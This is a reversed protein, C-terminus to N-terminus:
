LNNQVALKSVFAKKPSFDGDRCLRMVTEMRSTADFCRFALHMRLCSGNFIRRASRKISLKGRLIADPIVMCGAQSTSNVNETISTRILMFIDSSRLIHEKKSALYM